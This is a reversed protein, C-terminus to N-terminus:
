KADPGRSARWAACPRICPLPGFSLCSLDKGHHAPPPSASPPNFVLLHQISIIMAEHTLTGGLGGRSNRAVLAEHRAMGGADGRAPRGLTADAGTWAAAAGVAHHAGYTFIVMKLTKNTDSAPSTM